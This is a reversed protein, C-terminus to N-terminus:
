SFLLPVWPAVCVGVGTMVIVLKYFPKSRMINDASFALLLGIVSMGIAVAYRMRQCERQQELELQRKGLDHFSASATVTMAGVDRAQPAVPAAESTQQQRQDTTHHEEQLSDGGATAAQRQASASDQAARQRAVGRCGLPFLVAFACLACLVSSPSRLGSCALGSGPPM